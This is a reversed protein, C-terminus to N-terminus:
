KTEENEEAPDTEGPESESDQRLRAKLVAFLERENETLPMEPNAHEEEPEPLRHSSNLLVNAARVDGKLGKAMLNRVLAHGKPIKRTRGGERVLTPENLVEILFTNLNRARKPRGRPNGSQGQRFQHEKPPKKYGVRDEADTEEESQPTSDVPTANGPQGQNGENSKKSM